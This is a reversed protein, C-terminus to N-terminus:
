AFRFLKPDIGLASFLCPLINYHAAEHKPNTNFYGSFNPTDELDSKLSCAGNAIVSFEFKESLKKAVGSRIYNRVFLDGAVVLLVKTKKNKM